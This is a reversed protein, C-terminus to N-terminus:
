KKELRYVYPEQDSRIFRYDKELQSTIRTFYIPRISYTSSILDLESQTLEPNGPYPKFDIVTIGPKTKQIVAVYQLAYLMGWDSFVMSGDEIQAIMREALEKSTYYHAWQIDALKVDISDGVPKQPQTQSIDLKIIFSAATLLFLASGLASVLVRGARSNEKLKLHHATSVVLHSIFDMGVVALLAVLCYSAIFFVVIGARIAYNAPLLILILLAIALLVGEKWGTRKHKGPIFITVLGLLALCAWALGVAQLLSTFYTKIYIMVKALPLSFLTGRFQQATMIFFMRELPNDLDSAALGYRSTNPYIVSQINGASPDRLALWYYSIFLLLVGAAVGGIASIWEKKKPNNVVMYVVIALGPLLIMSHIGLGLGGLIGAAILLREDRQRSWILVLFLILISVLASTTYVEAIIANKWFIGTLGYAIPAALAIAKQGTFLRAALYLFGISLSASVTSLLNIRWPLENFPLFSFLRGILLYIPYGMAHALGLQDSLVQFEASDGILLGPALTKGYLILFLVTVAGALFYDFKHFIGSKNIVKQL